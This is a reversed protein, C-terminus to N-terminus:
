VSQEPIGMVQLPSWTSLTKFLFGHGSVYRKRVAPVVLECYANSDGAERISLAIASRVIRWRVIREPSLLLSKHSLYHKLFRLTYM